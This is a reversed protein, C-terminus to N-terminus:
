KKASIRKQCYEACTNLAQERFEDNKNIRDLHSKALLWIRMGESEIVKMPSRRATACDETGDVVLTEIEEPEDCKPKKTTAHAKNISIEGKSLAEKVEPTASKEIQKVKDVTDRSM